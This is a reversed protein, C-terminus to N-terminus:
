TAVPELPAPAVHPPPAVPEPVSLAHSRQRYWLVESARQWLRTALWFVIVAQSVVFSAALSEPRLHSMWIRMGLYFGIWGVFSVRAFLWFLSAFNRWLLVGSLKLARRMRTEGEAVAIVQAMDFWLRICMALLIIIATAAELVHVSIFPSISQQDVKRYAAGSLSVLVGIPVMAVAFCIMLRLFRWFHEGCARCFEGTTLQREEHYASLLGGTAFLMFVTFLIASYVMMPRSGSFPLAPHLMLEYYAGLDFGHVLREARLSHNLIDGSRTVVARTGFFALFLNAAYLVWLVRQRRWVLAAGAFFTKPRAGAM